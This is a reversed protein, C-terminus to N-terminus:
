SNMREFFKLYKEVIISETFNAKYEASAQGALYEARDPEEILYKISAALMKEDDISFLVGNEGHTILTGPGISDAAIVPVGQAWAEIVVNGLPEHRSPCVFIDAAAFLAEPDDQWGLFRVRPKIGLVEAQNELEKRLSGEGALWLYANPVRAVARLLLDFAKNEHLRGMALILPTNQPTYFTQRDVPVARKAGVFNPLYHVNEQAWGNNILFEAIDETNAILHDCNRYYKLNYYGGLRGIHVFNGDAPCMGTARNMWSLVIDPKFDNIQRKLAWPTSFDLKGGFKLQHPEVGGEVFRRARAENRRIVVRQEISTKHLAITLRTFFEEAGGYEAGAMVQLVKM